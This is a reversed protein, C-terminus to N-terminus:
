DHEHYAGDLGIHHFFLAGLRDADANVVQQIPTGIARLKHRWQTLPRTTIMKSWWEQYPIGTLDLCQFLEQVRPCSQLDFLTCFAKHHLEDVMPSLLPIHDSDNTAPSDISSDTPESDFNAQPLAPRGQEVEQTHCGELRPELGREAQPQPAQQSRQNDAPQSSAPRYNRLAQTHQPSELHWPDMWRKCKTCYPWLTDPSKSQKWVRLESLPDDICALPAGPHIMIEQAHPAASGEEQPQSPASDDEQHDEIKFRDPFHDALAKKHQPSGQHHVDIWCQCHTCYPWSANPRIDGAEHRERMEVFPDDLISFRRIKNHGEKPARPATTGDPKDM